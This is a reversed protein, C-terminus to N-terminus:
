SMIELDRQKGGFVRPIDLDNIVSRGKSYGFTFMQGAPLCWIHFQNAGDVLRSEAPYLEAGEREPGVIENKIRQFHRWDRPWERDTRRISLETIGRPHDFVLVVYRDNQWVASPVDKVYKMFQASMSGDDFETRELPQWPRNVPRKKPAM